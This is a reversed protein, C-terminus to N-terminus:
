LPLAKKTSRGEEEELKHSFKFININEPYIIIYFIKRVDKCCNLVAQIAARTSPPMRTAMAVGFRPNAVGSAEWFNM